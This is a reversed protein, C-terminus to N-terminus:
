TLPLRQPAGAPHIKPNTPLGLGGGGPRAGPSGGGWPMTVKKITDVLFREHLQDRFFKYLEYLM